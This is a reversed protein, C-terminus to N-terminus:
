LGANRGDPTQYYSRCGGRSGSPTWAASRSRPSSRRRSTPACRSRRRAGRQADDQLADVIYAMQSELMYLASQNGAAGFPGLFMFLNPFGALATGKYSQPREDYLEAVSRGRARDM